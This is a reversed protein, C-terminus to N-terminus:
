AEFKLDDSSEPYTDISAILPVAAAPEQQAPKHRIRLGGYPVAKLGLACSDCYLRFNEPVIEGSAALRFAYKQVPSKGCKGLQHAGCRVGMCQCRDTKSM